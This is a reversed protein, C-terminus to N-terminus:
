DRIPAATAGLVGDRDSSSRWAFVSDLRPERTAGFASGCARSFGAFHSSVMNVGLPCNRGRRESLRGCRYASFAGRSVFRAGAAWRMRMGIQQKMM